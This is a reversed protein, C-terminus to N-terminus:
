VPLWLALAVGAVAVVVLVVRVLTYTLLTIAVAGILFCSAISAWAAPALCLLISGGALGLSVIDMKPLAYHYRLVM